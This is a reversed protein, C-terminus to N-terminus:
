YGQDALTEYFECSDSRWEKTGIDCSRKYYSKALKKNVPIENGFYYMNGVFSCCNDDYLTCAKDYYYAAEYYHEREYKNISGAMFCGYVDNLDCAKIAYFVAKEYNKSERYFHSLRGCQEGNNKDCAEKYYKEAVREYKKASEKDIPGNLGKSYMYAHRYCGEGDHYLECAKRFYADATDNNAEVGKGYYYLMGLNTCAYGYMERLCAKEFYKKARSFDKEVGDIHPARSDRYWQGLTNCSDSDSLDCAKEYYKKALNFNREVGLGKLYISGLKNCSGAVNNDCEQKYDNVTHQHSSCGVNGLLLLNALILFIINNRRM